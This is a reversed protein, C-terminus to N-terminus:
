MEDATASPEQSTSDDSSAAEQPEASDSDGRATEHQQQQQHDIKDDTEEVVEIHMPEVRAHAHQESSALQQQQQKQQAQLLQHLHLQQQQQQHQQQFHQQQLLLQFAHPSQMSMPLLIMPQQQQMIAANVATAASAKSPSSVSSKSPSSQSSSSSAPTPSTSSPGDGNAPPQAFQFQPHLRLQGPQSSSVVAAATPANAGSGEEEGEKTEGVENSDSKDETAGEVQKGEPAHTAAVPTPQRGDMHQQQQQQMAMHQHPSPIVYMIQGNQGQIVQIPMMHVAGPQGPHRMGFQAPSYLPYVFAPPVAASPSGASQAFYYHPQVEPDAHVTLQPPYAHRGHKPSSSRSSSQSKGTAASEGAGSQDASAPRHSKDLEERMQRETERQEWRKLESNFREREKRAEVEFVEKEDGSLKKWQEAIIRGQQRVDGGQEAVLRELEVKRHNTVFSVFFKYASKPARPYGKPKKSREKKNDKKDDREAREKEARWKEEARKRKREKRPLLSVHGTKDVYEQLVRDAVAKLTEEKCENGCVLKVAENIEEMLRGDLPRTMYSHFLHWLINSQEASVMRHLHEYLLNAYVEATPAATSGSSAAAVLAPSSPATSPLSSSRKRKKRIEEDDLSRHKKKSKKDGEVEGGGEGDRRRKKKKHERHDVDAAEKKEKDAGEKAKMAAADGEKDKEKDRKRKKKREKGDTEAAAGGEVVKESKVKVKETEARDKDRKEKKKRKKEKDLEGSGGSQGNTDKQKVKTEDKKVKKDKKDVAKVKDVTATVVGGKVEGYPYPKGDRKCCRPCIYKKIKNAQQETLGVCAPHYWDDCQDCGIMFIGNQYPQRCLCYLDVYQRCLAIDDADLWVRDPGEAQQLLAEFASRGQKQEIAEEMRRNWEDARDLEGVIRATWESQVNGCEKFRDALLKALSTQRSQKQWVKREKPLWRFCAAVRLNLEVISPLPLAQFLLKQRTQYDLLSSLSHPASASSSSAQLISSVTGNWGHLQQYWVAFRAYTRNLTHDHERYQQAGMKYLSEWLETLGKMENKRSVAAVGPTDAARVTLTNAIMIREAKELALLLRVRDELERRERMELPISLGDRLHQQLRDTYSIRAALAKEREVKEEKLRTVTAKDFLPPLSVSSPSSAAPSSSTSSTATNPESDAAKKDRSSGDKEKSKKDKSKDKGRERGNDKQKEKSKKNSGSSGDEKKSREKKSAEKTQKVAPQQTHEHSSNPDNSDLQMNTASNDIAFSPTIDVRIQLGSADMVATIFVQVLHNSVEEGATTASVGAVVSGRRDEIKEAQQEAKRELAKKRRDALETLKVQWDVELMKDVEDMRIEEVREEVTQKIEDLMARARSAWQEGKTLMDDVKRKEEGQVREPRAEQRRRLLEVRVGMVRRKRTPAKERWKYERREKICCTPCVFQEKDMRKMDDKTLNLCHIHYWVACRECEVMVDEPMYPRRCYCYLSSVDVDDDSAVTASSAAATSQAPQSAPSFSASSTNAPATFSSALNATPRARRKGLKKDAKAADGSDDDAEITERLPKVDTGLLIRSMVGGLRRSFLAHLRRSWMWYLLVRLELSHLDLSVASLFGDDAASSPSPTAAVVSAPVLQSLSEPAVDVSLDFAVSPPAPPDATAASTTPPQTAMASPADVDMANHGGVELKQPEVARQQTDASVTEVVSADEMNVSDPVQQPQESMGVKPEGLMAADGLAEDAHPEVAVETTTATVDDGTVNEEVSNAIASSATATSASLSPEAAATTVLATLTGVSPQVDKLKTGRKGKKSSSGEEEEEEAEDAEDESEAKEEEDEELMMGKREEEEWVRRVSGMVDYAVYRKKLGRLLEVGVEWEMDGNKGDKLEEKVEWEWMRRWSAAELEDVEAMLVGLARGQSLLAKVEAVTPLPSHLAHQAAQQWALCTAITANLYSLEPLLVLDLRANFRDASADITPTSSTISTLAVTNNSLTHQHYQQQLAVLQSLHASPHPPVVPVDDADQEDEDAEDEEEDGHRIDDEVTQQLEDADMRDTQDSEDKEVTQEDKEKEDAEEEEKLAIVAPVEKIPRTRRVRQVRKATRAKPQEVQAVQVVSGAPLVQLVERRWRSAVDWRRRVTLLPEDGEDVGARRLEYVTNSLEFLPTPTAAAVLANSESVLLTVEDLRDQIRSAFPLSLLRLSHFFDGTSLRNKAFFSDPISASTSAASPVSSPLPTIDSASQQGDLLRTISSTALTDGDHEEEYVALLWRLKEAATRREVRVHKDRYEDSHMGHGGGLTRMAKLCTNAENMWVRGCRLVTRLVALEVSESAVLAINKGSVRNVLGDVEDFQLWHTEGGKVRAMVEAAKALWDNTNNVVREVRTEEMLLLPLQKLEQLLEEWQALPLRKSKPNLATVIRAALQEAQKAQQRITSIRKGTTPLRLTDAERLLHLLSELSPRHLAVSADTTSSLPRTYLADIRHTFLKLELLTSLHHTQLQLPFSSASALLARCHAVTDDSTPDLSAISASTSSLWEKAAAIHTSLAATEPLSLFPAQSRLKTLMEEAEEITLKAPPQKPQDGDEKEKEKEKEREARTERREVVDQEDDEDEDERREERRVKENYVAVFRRGLEMVQRYWVSQDMVVGGCQRDYERVLRSVDVLTMREEEGGVLQGSKVRDYIPQWREKWEHCRQVLQRVRKKDKSGILPARTDAEDLLSHLTTLLVGNNDKATKNLASLIPRAKDLWDHTSSLVTQLTNLASTYSPEVTAPSASASATTTATATSSDTPPVSNRRMKVDGVDVLMGIVHRLVAVDIEDTVPPSLSRTNTATETADEDDDIMDGNEEEGGNVKGNAAALSATTTHQRYNILKCALDFAAKVQERNRILEATDKERKVQEFSEVEQRMHEEGGREEDGEKKVPRLRVGSWPGGLRWQERVGGRQRRQEREDEHLLPNLLHHKAQVVDYNADRLLCLLEEEGLQPSMGNALSLYSSVTSAPLVSPNWVCWDSATGGGRPAFSSPPPPKNSLPPLATQYQTDSIRPERYPYASFGSNLFLDSIDSDDTSAALSRSSLM